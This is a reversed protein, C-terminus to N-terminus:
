MLRHLYHDRQGVSRIARYSLDHVYTHNRSRFCGKAPHSWWWPKYHVFRYAPVVIDKVPRFPECSHLRGWERPFSTLRHLSRRLGSLHRSHVFGRSSRFLTTYPFLTDTRTSRPPLRIM